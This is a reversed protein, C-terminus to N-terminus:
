KLGQLKADGSQEPKARKEFINKVNNKSSTLYNFQLNIYRIEFLM